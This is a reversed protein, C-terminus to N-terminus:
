PRVAPRRRQWWTGAALVATCLAAGVAKPEPVVAAVNDLALGYNGGRDNMGRWRLMVSDGHNLSFGSFVGNLLRVSAPVQADSDTVPGARQAGSFDLQAVLSWAGGPATAPELATAQALSGSMAYNFMLSEVATNGFDPLPEGLYIFEPQGAVSGSPNPIMVAYAFSGFNATSPSTRTNSERAYGFTAGSNLAGPAATVVTAFGAAGALALTCRVLARFDRRQKSTGVVAGPERSAPALTGSGGITGTHSRDAQCKRRHLAAEGSRPHRRHQPIGKAAAIVNCTPIQAMAGIDTAEGVELLPTFGQGTEFRAAPKAPECGPRNASAPWVGDVRCPVPLAWRPPSMWAM